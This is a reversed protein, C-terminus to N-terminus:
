FEIWFIIKIWIVNLTPVRITFSNFLFIIQKNAKKQSLLKRFNWGIIFFPAFPLRRGVLILSFNSTLCRKSRLLGKCLLQHVWKSSELPFPSHSIPNRVFCPFLNPAFLGYPRRTTWLHCVASNSVNSSFFSSTSQLAQNMFGRILNIIV